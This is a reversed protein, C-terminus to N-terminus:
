KVLGTGSAPPNDAGPATKYGQDNCTQKGDVGTYVCIVPLIDSGNIHKELSYQQASGTGRRQATIYTNGSASTITYIFFNTQVSNASLPTAREVGVDLVNFDINGSHMKQARQVSGALTTLISAAEVSRSREVVRIYEPIAIAALIGIILVVVLLEILTFGRKKM